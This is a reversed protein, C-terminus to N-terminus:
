KKLYLSRIKNKKNEDVNIVEKLFNDMDGYTDKIYNLASLLYERKALFLEKFKHKSNKNLLVISALEYKFPMQYYENSLLYDYMITEEDLGLIYELVASVLGCRDKGASCHWLIAGKKNNAFIDFISKWADRKDYTVLKPYTNCLNPIHTPIKRRGSEHTIGLESGTLLPIHYYLSGPVKTDKKKIEADTRLDIITEVNYKYALIDADYESLKNLSSSRILKKEKINGYSIDRINKISSLEIKEM